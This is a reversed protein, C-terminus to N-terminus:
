TRKSPLRPSHIIRVKKTANVNIGDHALLREVVDVHGYYAAGHIPASGEQPFAVLCDHKRETNAEDSLIGKITSDVVMGVKCTVNVNVRPDELLRHVVSAHGNDAAEHLPTVGYQYWM